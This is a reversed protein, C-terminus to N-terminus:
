KMLKRVAIQGKADSIRLLYVGEALSGTELEGLTQAVPLVSRRVVRGQLDTLELRLEQYDPALLEVKVTERMPVPYTRFELEPNIATLGGVGQQGLFNTTVQIDITQTTGECVGEPNSAEFKSAANANLPDFVPTVEVSVAVNGGSLNTFSTIGADALAQFPAFADDSRDNQASGYALADFGAALEIIDPNPDIHVHYTLLGNNGELVTDPPTISITGNPDDGTSITIPQGPSQANDLVAEAKPYM